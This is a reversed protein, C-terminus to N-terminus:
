PVYCDWRLCNPLTFAYGTGSAAGGGPAGTYYVRVRPGVPIVEPDAVRSAEWSKGAPALVPNNECRIWSLGDGSRAYGIASATRDANWGGYWLHYQDGAQLITPSTIGGAEWENLPRLTELVQTIRRGDLSTVRYLSYPRFAAAVWGVFRSGDWTLFADHVFSLVSDADVSWNLRDTSVAHGVSPIGSVDVATFWMHYQTVTTAGQVVRRSTVSPALFWGMEAWRPISNFVAVGDDTWRDGDVSSALRVETGCAYWMRLVSGERLISPSAVSGCALGTVPATAAPYGDGPRVVPECYDQDPALGTAAKKACGTPLLLLALLTAALSFPRSLAAM